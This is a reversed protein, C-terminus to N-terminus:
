TKKGRGHADFGRAMGFVSAKKGCRLDRRPKLYKANMECMFHPELDGWMEFFHQVYVHKCSPEQACIEKCESVAEAMSTINSSLAEAPGANVDVCGARPGFVPTFTPSELSITSTSTVTTSSSVSLTTYPPVTETVTVQTIAFLTTTKPTGDVATTTAQVAPAEVTKTRTYTPVPRGMCSCAIALTNNSTLSALAPLADIANCTAASAPTSMAAAAVPVASLLSCPVYTTVTANESYTSIHIDTITSTPGKTVTVTSNETNTTKITVQNESAAMQTTSSTLVDLTTTTVTVVKTQRPIEKCLSKAEKVTGLCTLAAYPDEQCVGNQAVVVNSFCIAAVAALSFSALM